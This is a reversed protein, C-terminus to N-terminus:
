MQLKISFTNKQLLARPRDAQRVSELRTLANRPGPVGRGFSALQAALRRSVVLGTQSNM